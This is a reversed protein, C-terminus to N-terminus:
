IGSCASCTLLCVKELYFAKMPVKGQKKEAAVHLIDDYHTFSSWPM